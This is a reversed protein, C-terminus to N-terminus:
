LFTIICHLMYDTLVTFHRNFYWSNSYFRELCKIGANERVKWCKESEKIERILYIGQSKKWNEGVLLFGTLQEQIDHLTNSKDCLEAAVATCIVHPCVFLSM